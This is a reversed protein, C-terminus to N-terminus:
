KGFWRQWINLKKKPSVTYAARLDVVALTEEQGDENADTWFILQGIVDGRSVTPYLFRPLEIRTHIEIDDYPMTLRATNANQVVVYDEKGGIV